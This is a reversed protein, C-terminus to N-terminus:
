TRLGVVLLPCRESLEYTGSTELTASCSGPLIDLLERVTPFSYTGPIHGLRDLSAMDDASWGTIRRLAARDPFLEDFTEKIARVPINPTRREACLGNALRWKLGSMSAVRGALTAARTNSLSECDDPTVFVRLALRGGPRVVRTLEDFLM